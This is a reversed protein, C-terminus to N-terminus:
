AARQFDGSGAVREFVCGYGASTILDLIDASPEVPLLVTYKQADKVHRRYDFLQGIAYRVDNRSATGKAEYLENETEDYLDTYLANHRGPLTISWRGVTNGMSTLAKEYREVLAQERREATTPASGAVPYSGVNGAELPVRVVESQTSRDIVVSRDEARLETDGVPRLRFVFVDRMAGDEDRARGMTYPLTQDVEFEGIYRHLRTKTGDVYGDAVFLRVARKAAHHQLLGKNGDTMTQPGHKGEGTYLFLDDDVDWGDTYGYKLGKPPDSYVFVNPTQASPEIGGQEGGGYKDMRQRRTLREGLKTEWQQM